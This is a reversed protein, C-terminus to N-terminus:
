GVSIQVTKMMCKIEKTVKRFLSKIKSFVAIVNLYNSKSMLHSCLSKSCIVGDFLFFPRYYTKKKQVIYFPISGFLCTIEQHYARKKEYNEM